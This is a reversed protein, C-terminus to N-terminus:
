IQFAIGSDASVHGHSRKQVQSCVRLYQFLCQVAKLYLAVLYFDSPRLFAANIGTIEIHDQRILFLVSMRMIHIRRAAAMFMTMPLSMGIVVLVPTALVMLVFMLVSMVMRVVMVMFMMMLVLMFMMMVMVM